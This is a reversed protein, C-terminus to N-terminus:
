NGVCLNNTQGNGLVLFIRTICHKKRSKYQKVKQKTMIMLINFPMSDINNHLTVHSM